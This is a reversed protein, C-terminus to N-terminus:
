KDSSCLLSCFYFIWNSRFMTTKAYSISISEESVIQKEIRKWDKAKHKWDFQQRIELTASCFSDCDILVPMLTLIHVWFPDFSHILSVQPSLLKQSFKLLIEIRLPIVMSQHVRTPFGIMFLFFHITRSSERFIFWISRCRDNLLRCLIGFGGNASRAFSCQRWNM